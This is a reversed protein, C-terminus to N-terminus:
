PNKFDYSASYSWIKLHLASLSKPKQLSTAIRSWTVFIADAYVKYKSCHCTAITQTIWNWPILPILDSKPNSYHNNWVFCLQRTSPAGWFKVHSELLEQFNILIQFVSSSTSKSVLFFTVTVRTRKMDHCGSPATSWVKVITDFKRSRCPFFYNSFHIAHKKLTRADPHCLAMRWIVYLSTQAVCLYKSITKNM